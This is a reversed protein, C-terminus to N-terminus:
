AQLVPALCCGHRTVHGRLAVHDCVCGWVREAATHRSLHAPVRPCSTVQFRDGRGCRIHLVLSQRRSFVSLGRDSHTSLGGDSSVALGEDSFVGLGEDSFVGLGGANFERASGLWRFVGLGGISFVGLGGTSFIGVSFVGLGGVSFWGASFIDLGMFVCLGGSFFADRLM